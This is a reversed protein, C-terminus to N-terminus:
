LVGLEKFIKILDDAVEELDGELITAGEGVEPIYMRDVPTGDSSDVEPADKEEIETSKMAQRVKSVAVYRPPEEAVQIGLVVPLGATIEANMGGPYEKNVLADGNQISLGRM